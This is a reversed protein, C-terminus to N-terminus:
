FLRRVRSPLETCDAADGDCQRVMPADRLAPLPVSIVVNTLGFMSSARHQCADRKWLGFALLQSLLGVGDGGASGTEEARSYERVSPMSPSDDVKFM